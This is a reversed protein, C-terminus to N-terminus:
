IKSISIIKGGQSLITKITASMSTQSVVSRQEVRRNAGVQRNSTWSITIKNSFGVGKREINSPSSDM